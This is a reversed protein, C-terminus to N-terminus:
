QQMDIGLYGQAIGRYLEFVFAVAFVRLARLFVRLILLFILLNGLAKKMKKADQKM